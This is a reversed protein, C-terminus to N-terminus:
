FIKLNLGILIPKKIIVCVFYKRGCNILSVYACCVIPATRTYRAINCPTNYNTITFNWQRLIFHFYLDCSLVTQEYREYIGSRKSYPNVSSSLLSLVAYLSEVYICNFSDRLSRNSFAQPKICNCIYTYMDRSYECAEIQLTLLSFFVFQYSARLQYSKMLMILSACPCFAFLLQECNITRWRRLFFVNM